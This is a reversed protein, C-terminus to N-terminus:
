RDTERHTHGPCVRAFPAYMDHTHARQSHTHTWRKADGDPTLQFLAVKPDIGAAFLKNEAKNTALCLVDATHQEFSHLLTGHRGDWVRTKGLSDGSVVTWDALVLVAWVVPVSGLLHADQAEITLRYAAAGTRCHWRRLTGDAYGAVLEAGDAHFAVSCARAAQAPLARQYRLGDAAVDFLRVSGDECAAALLSGRASCAVAWVGGGYSDSSARPRLTALDWETIQGNLAARAAGDTATGRRWSIRLTGASFLRERRLRETPAKDTRKRKAAQKAGADDDSDSDEEGSSAADEEHVAWALGKVSLDKRGPIRLYCHAPGAGVTWLEIDGNGRAVALSGSIPAFALASVPAPQWEVFRFRSARLTLAARPGYRCRHLQM